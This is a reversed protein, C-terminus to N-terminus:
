GGRVFEPKSILRLTEGGRWVVEGSKSRSETFVKGGNQTRESLMEESTMCRGARRHKDAVSDASFHSHCESCHAERKGAWSRSCEPCHTGRLGPPWSGHEAAYMCIQCNPDYTM